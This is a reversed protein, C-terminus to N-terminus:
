ARFWLFAHLRRVGYQHVAERMSTPLSIAAGAFGPHPDYLSVLCSKESNM